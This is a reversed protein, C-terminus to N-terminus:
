QGALIKQKQDEYEEETLDGDRYLKYLKIIADSINGRAKNRYEDPVQLESILKPNNEIARDFSMHIDLYGQSGDKYTIAGILEIYGNYFISIGFNKMETVLMSSGALSTYSGKSKINIHKYKGHRGSGKNFYLTMGKYIKFGSTSYVTDNELRPLGHQATSSFPLLLFLFLSSKM